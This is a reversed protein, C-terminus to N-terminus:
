PCRKCCGRWCVTELFFNHM